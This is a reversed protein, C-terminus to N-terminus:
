SVEPGSGAIAEVTELFEELGSNRIHASVLLWAAIAMVIAMPGLHLLSPFFPWVVAVVGGLAGFLMIIAGGRNVRLRVDKPEVSLRVGGPSSPSAAVLISGSWYGRRLGASVPIWLEGGDGAAEWKGGWEGAAQDLARSVVEASADIEIPDRM